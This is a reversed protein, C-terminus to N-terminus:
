EQAALEREFELRQQHELWQYARMDMQKRVVLTNGSFSIDFLNWSSKAMFKNLEHLIDEMSDRIKLYHHDVAEHISDTRGELLLREEEPLNAYNVASLEDYRLFQEYISYRNPNGDFPYEVYEAIVDRILAGIAKIGQYPYFPMMSVYQQVIKAKLFHAPIVVKELHGELRFIDAQVQYVDDVPLCVNGERYYLEDTLKAVPEISSALYIGQPAPKLDRGAFQEVSYAIAGIDARFIAITEIKIPMPKPNTHPLRSSDKPSPVANPVYM